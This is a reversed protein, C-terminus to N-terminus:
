FKVVICFYFLEVALKINEFTLRKVYWVYQLIKPTHFNPTTIATCAHNYDRNVFYLTRNFITICVPVPFVAVIFSWICGVVFIM